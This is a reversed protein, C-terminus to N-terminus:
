RKKKLQITTTMGCRWHITISWDGDISSYRENLKDESDRQNNKEFKIKNVSDDLWWYHIEEFSEYAEKLKLLKQAEASNKEEAKVINQIRKLDLSKYAALIAEKVSHSTVVFGKCENDGDCYLYKKKSRSHLVHGCFPCRLYDGFPYRSNPGRREMNKILNCRNFQERSIIAEHHNKVYVSPLLGNNKYARKDFIDKHYYKQTKCDGVYKENEIMGRIVPDRWVKTGYLTPIGLESFIKIIKRTNVGHEYLDFIKRVVAAEEPVIEYNDGVKKYGYIRNLSAEGAQARKRKAWKINESLSRSEEEAFAALITFMMESYNNDTDIEEKEFIVRIGLDRLHQYYYIADRTSRAFRSISKCIVCDILGQECDKIMKMFEPRSKAKTGSLGRDAYIGVLKWGEQNNIKETYVTKQNDFSESQEESSTSVRCYAAVRLENYGARRKEKPYCIKSIKM